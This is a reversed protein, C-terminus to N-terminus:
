RSTKFVFKLFEAFSDRGTVINVNDQFLYLMFILLNFNILLKGEIVPEMQKLFNIVKEHVLHLLSLYKVLFLAAFEQLVLVSFAILDNTLFLRGCARHYLSLDVCFEKLFDSARFSLEVHTLSGKLFVFLVLFCNRVFVFLNRLLDSDCEARGGVFLKGLSVSDLEHDHHFPFLHFDHFFHFRCGNSFFHILIFHVFKHRGLLSPCEVIKINVM